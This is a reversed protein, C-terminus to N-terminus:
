VPEMNEPNMDLRRRPVHNGLFTKMSKKVVPDNHINLHSLTQRITRKYRDKEKRWSQAELEAAVAVDSAVQASVGTVDPDNKFTRDYSEDVEQQDSEEREDSAHM